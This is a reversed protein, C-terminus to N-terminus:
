VDLATETEDHRPVGDNMMVMALVIPNDRECFGDMFRESPYGGHESSSLEM